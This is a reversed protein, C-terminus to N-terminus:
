LFDFYTVPDEKFGQYNTKKILLAGKKFDQKAIGFHKDFAGIDESISLRDNNNLKNIEQELNFWLQTKDGLNKLFIPNDTDEDKVQTYGKIFFRGLKWGFHVDNEEINYEESYGNDKGTNIVKKDMYYKEEAFTLNNRSFFFIVILSLILFRKTYSKM